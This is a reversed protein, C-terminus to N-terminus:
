AHQVHFEKRSDPWQNPFIHRDAIFLVGTLTLQRIIPHVADMAARVRRASHLADNFRCYWERQLQRATRIFRPAPKISRVIGSPNAYVTGLRIPGYKRFLIRFLCVIAEDAGPNTLEYGQTLLSFTQWALDNFDPTCRKIIFGHQNDAVLHDYVEPM